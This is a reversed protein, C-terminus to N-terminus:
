PRGKEGESEGKEQGGSKISRGMSETEKTERRKTLFLSSAREVRRETVSTSVAGIEETDGRTPSDQQRNLVVAINEAKLRGGFVYAGEFFFL